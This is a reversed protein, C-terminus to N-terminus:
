PDGPPPAPPPPWATDGGAVKDLEDDSLEQDSRQLEAIDEPTLRYGRDDAWRVAADPTALLSRLEELLRPTASLSQLFRKLEDSSM